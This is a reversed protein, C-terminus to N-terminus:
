LYIVRGDFAMFNDQLHTVPLLSDVIPPTIAVPGWRKLLQYNPTHVWVWAFSTKHCSQNQHLICVPEKTIIINSFLLCLLLLFCESNKINAVNLLEKVMDTFLIIEVAHHPCIGYYHPKWCYFWKHKLLWIWVVICYVHV